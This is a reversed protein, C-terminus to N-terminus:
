TPATSTAQEILARLMPDDDCRRRLTERIIALEDVSLAKWVHLAEEVKADLYGDLDLEGNRLRTLPSQPHPEAPATPLPPPERIPVVFARRSPAERVPVVPEVSPPVGSIRSLKV